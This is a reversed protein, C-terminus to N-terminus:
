AEKLAELKTIIEALDTRQEDTGNFRIWNGNAFNTVKELLREIKELNKPRKQLDELMTAFVWLRFATRGEPLYYKENMKTIIEPKLSCQNEAAQMLYM